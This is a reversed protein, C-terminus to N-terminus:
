VDGLKRFAEVYYAVLVAVFFHLRLMSGDFLLFNPLPLSSAVFWDMLGAQDEYLALCAGLSLLLLITLAPFTGIAMAAASPPPGHAASGLRRSLWAVPRKSKRKITLPSPTGFTPAWM